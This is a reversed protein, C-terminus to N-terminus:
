IKYKFELLEKFTKQFTKYIDELYITRHRIGMQVTGAAILATGLIDSIAPEPFAILALGAKILISNNGKRWLKKTERAEKATGKMAGLLDTYSESLEKVSMTLAKLDETKLQGMDFGVSFLM